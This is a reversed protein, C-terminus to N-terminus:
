LYYNLENEAARRDSSLEDDANGVRVIPLINYIVINTFTESFLFSDM